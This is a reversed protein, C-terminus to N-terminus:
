VATRLNKVLEMQTDADRILEIAEQDSCTAFKGIINHALRQRSVPDLDFRLFDPIVGGGKSAKTAMKKQRQLEVDIEKAMAMEQRNCTAVKSMNTSVHTRLSVPDVAEDRKKRCYRFTELIPPLITSLMMIVAMPDFGVRKNTVGKVTNPSIYAVTGTHATVSAAFINLASSM